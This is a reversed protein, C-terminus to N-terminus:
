QSTQCSFKIQTQITQTQIKIILLRIEIQSIAWFAGCEKVRSNNLPKTSM